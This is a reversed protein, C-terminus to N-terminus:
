DVVIEYVHTGYGEFNDTFFKGSAHLNRDEFLIKIAKINNILTFKVKIPNTDGNVAILYKKGQYKKLMTYIQNNEPLISINGCMSGNSLMPTLENIEGIPLVQKYRELQGRWLYPQFGKAGNVLALYYMARSEIKNPYRKEGNPRPHPGFEEPMFWVPKKDGSAKVAHNVMDAVLTIPHKEHKNEPDRQRLFDPYNYFPYADPFLFDSCRAFVPYALPWWNTVGIPRYPDIKKLFQYAKNYIVIDSGIEPEDFVWCLLAPHAMMAVVWKGIIEYNCEYMASRPIEMSVFLGNDRAEDLYKIANELNQEYSLKKDQFGWHHIFNIGLTKARAVQTPYVGYFGNPFFPKNNVLLINDKRVNVKTSIDETLTFYWEEKVLNGVNDKIELIVKHLGRQLPEKPIYKIGTTTIKLDESINKGNLSLKISETDIGSGKQNDQFNASIIPRSNSTTWPFVNLIYPPTTDKAENKLTFSFVPSNLEKVEFSSCLSIRWYYTGDSLEKLPRYSDSLLDNVRFVEEKFNKDKSYCLQYSPYIDIGAWRKYDAWNIVRNTPITREWSFLPFSTQIISKNSPSLLSIFFQSAVAPEIRFFSYRATTPGNAAYLGVEKVSFSSALGMITYNEGDESYKFVIKEKHKEIQFYIESQTYVVPPLTTFKGEQPGGCNLEHATGNYTRSFKLWNNEDSWFYIGTEEWAKQPFYDKLATTIVFIDEKIEYSLKPATINDKWMGAKPPAKITLFGEKETLSYSSGEIFSHKWKWESALSFKRFTDEFILGKDLSATETDTFEVDDFWVTGSSDYIQILISVGTTGAPPSIETTRFTWNKSGQMDLNFIRRGKPAYHFFVTALGGSYGKLNDSKCWLSFKYKKGEEILVNDYILAGRGQTPSEIRMSQKGGHYVEKDITFCLGSTGRWNHTRWNELRSESDSKEFGPNKILNEGAYVFSFLTQFFVGTLLMIRTTGIFRKGKKEM